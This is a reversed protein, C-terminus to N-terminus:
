EIERHLLSWVNMGIYTKVRTRRCLKVGKVPAMVVVVVFKNQRLAFLILYFLLYLLNFVYLLAVPFHHLSM